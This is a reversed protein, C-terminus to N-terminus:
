ACIRIVAGRNRARTVYISDISVGRDRLLEEAREAVHEAEDEEAVGYVTPGWSSQGVGLAGARALAAAAERSEVCCYRGEQHKAFYSGAARDLEELAEAFVDLRQYRAALLLRVMLERLRQAEEESQPRLQALRRREREDEPVRRTTHPVILVFVWNRPVRVRAIPLPLDGIGLPEQLAGDRVPRGSDVVLGGQHFVGIGIGSVMGRRALLAAEYVSLARGRLVSSAIVVSLRFQTTSGLGIHRAYAEEVVVREGDGLLGMSRLLAVDRSFGPPVSDGGAGRCVRIRMSPKELAVGVGGYAVGLVPDYFNYFGLHLRSPADVLM